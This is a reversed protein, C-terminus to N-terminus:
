LEAGKWGPYKPVWNVMILGPRFRIGSFGLKASWEKCIQTEILKEIIEQRERALIHKLFLKPLIILRFGNMTNAYSVGLKTAKVKM